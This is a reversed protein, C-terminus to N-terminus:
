KVGGDAADFMSIWLLARTSGFLRVQDQPTEKPVAIARMGTIVYVDAIGLDIDAADTMEVSPQRPMVRMGQASLSSLYAALFARLNGSDLSWSEFTDPEGLTAIANDFAKDSSHTM